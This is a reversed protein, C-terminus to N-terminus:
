KTGAKFQRKSQRKLEISTELVRTKRAIARVGSAKERKAQNAM